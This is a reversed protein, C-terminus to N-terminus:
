IGINVEAITNEPPYLTMDLVEITLLKYYKIYTSPFRVERAMSIRFNLCTWKVVRQNKKKLQQILQM